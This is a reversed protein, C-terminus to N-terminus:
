IKCKCTYVLLNKNLVHGYNASVRAERVTAEGDKFKPYSVHLLPQGDKDTKRERNVNYNFHLAALISRNLFFSFVPFMFVICAVALFMIVKLLYMYKFQMHMSIIKM